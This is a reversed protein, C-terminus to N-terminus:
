SDDEESLGAKRRRMRRMREATLKRRHELLDPEIQLDMAHLVRYGAGDQVWFGVALLENIARFSNTTEAFRRVDRDDLHGRNERRMSWLLAEVHTRFAADSLAVRACDDGFDDSLKLWTM